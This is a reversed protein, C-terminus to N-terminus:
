CKRFICHRSVKTILGVIYRIIIFIIQFVFRREVDTTEDCLVAIPSDNFFEIMEQYKLQYLDPIIRRINSASPTRYEPRIYKNLFSTFSQKNLKEIPINSASPWVCLDNNFSKTTEQIDFDFKAIVRIKKVNEKHAM